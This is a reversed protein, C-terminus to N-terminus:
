NRMLKQVGVIRNDRIFRVMYLGTEWSTTSIEVMRTGPERIDAVTQGLTNMVQIRDAPLPMEITLHDGFPNPYVKIASMWQNDEIGTNFSVTVTYDLTSGDEAQVIYIVPITFNNPTLGSTQEIAGVYAKSLPSLTFTAVLATVNTGVPVVVSIDTGIIQGIAPPTLGNFNFSLISKLRSAETISVINTSANSMNGSYDVAYAHYNGAFLQYVSLNVPVNATVVLGRAGRRANVAIDLQAKSMQPEGEKILYVFSNLESSTVGVYHNLANTITQADVSVTPATRDLITIYNVGRLSKNGAADIAYTYYIGDSLGHTSMPIDTNAATVYSARGLGATVAAELHAVTTQAATNKIIYVKGTAENSRLVVFQGALNSVSQSTNSVVPKTTDAAEAITVTYIRTSNDQATVEYILPARFDNITLGSQQIGQNQVRVVSNASHTYTAVMAARNTGNPVTGTITNATHSIACTVDPDLALFAFYTIDKASSGGTVTVTVVYTATTNDEAFVTYTVPNTFDNVTTGSVQATTGIKIRNLGSSLTFTAILAAKSSGVPLTVAITGGGATQVITGAVAPTVSSISFTLIQKDTVVPNNLVTVAYTTTSGDTALLTYTRIATFDNATTGSVQLVGGLHATTGTTLAFSAVMSTRVATSPVNLQITRTVDNITGHATYNVVDTGLTVTGSISFATFRKPMEYITVTVIYDTTHIGDQAVVHYTLPSVFNNATTASVQPVGGVTVTTFPSATFTAVLATVNTAFPVVLAISHTTQNITGTVVPNLAAFRFDTIASSVNVATITVTVTYNQAVGAESTVVYTKAATFDNANTGSVQVVGGITVVAYPSATFNAVLATVNTGFPVTLNISTGSITGIVDPDLANFRFETISNGTAANAKTITVVYTKVTVGDEATVTYTVAAAFSNHTTGSVQAVLGIKATALPSLTFTAVLDALNGSFPITATITGGGATQVITGVVDPDFAAFRFDTILCATSIAAKTVTVTYIEESGDQARCKYAVPLTFDAATTGSTQQVGGIWVTAFTSHTFTPVLATVNTSNPVTLAITKATQNVTGIVDPDLTLFSFTLIQNATSAQTVTVTVTYLEESNDEAKCKYVVPATFNNATTASTQQVGGIWVTSLDSSTFTAVLNTVDTGFPVTLSITHNTQNITGIVDPDLALFGFTLISNAGSAAAKAVHVTYDKVAGSEATVRYVKDATFDNVTVGSTQAVVGVTVNSLPSNTFTAVLTTLNTAFPVTLNITGNVQNITGIVDPELANFRFETISNQISAAAKSVNVEYDKFTTGDEATIRYVVEGTFDNPTVGSTQVAGLVRATSYPSKTFTAVLNTLNTSFPVTITVQLGSITGLIDPTFADFEFSLLDCGTLAAAKTVTVYYIRTSLNAATVLYQVTSTFNNATVATTQPVGGVSVTAGTSVTFTAVLNTVDTSFPVTVSVQYTTQNITGTAGPIAAFSFTLLQKESSAQAQLSGNTAFGALIVALLVTLRKAPLFFSKKM